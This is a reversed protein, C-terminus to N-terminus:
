EEPGKRKNGRYCHAKATELGKGKWWEGRLAEFILYVCFGCYFMICRPLLGM